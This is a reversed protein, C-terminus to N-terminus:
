PALAYIEYKHKKFMHRSQIVAHTQASKTSWEVSGDEFAYKYNNNIKITNCSVINSHSAMTMSGRLIMCDNSLLKWCNVDMQTTLGTYKVFFTHM